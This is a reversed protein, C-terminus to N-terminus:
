KTVVRPKIVLEGKGKICENVWTRGVEVYMLRNLIGYHPIISAHYNLNARLKEITNIRCRTGIVSIIEDIDNETLKNRYNNFNIQEKM